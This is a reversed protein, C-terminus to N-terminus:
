HHILLTGNEETARLGCTPLIVEPAQNPRLGDLSGHLVVTRSLAATAAEDFVVRRGTERSVWDLFAELSRGELDFTPALGVVWDWEPGHAAIATRQVEGDESMLLESGACAQHTHDQQGVAVAGERVRVRLGDPDLRVEFQTGIHRVPGFPTQIAVTDTDAAMGATDLYVAGRELVLRNRNEFRIRSNTDLRLSAGDALRLACRGDDGTIVEADRGFSESKGAAVLDVQGVSTELWALPQASDGPGLVWTGALIMLVISAAIALVGFWRHTRGIRRTRISQQWHKHVRARIRETRQPPAEPRPGALRLLQGISEGDMEPLRHGDRDTTKQETM